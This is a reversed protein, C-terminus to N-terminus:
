YFPTPTNDKDWMEQRLEQIKNEDLSYFFKVIMGALFAGIGPALIFLKSIENATEVSVDQGAVIGLASLAFAILIGRFLLGLKIPIETMGMVFSGINDGSKWRTYIATNAYLVSNTPMAAGIVIYFFAFMTLVLYPNTSFFSATVLVVVELSFFLIYRHKPEKILKSIFPSLSAGILQAIASITMHASLLLPMKVAYTYYYFALAMSLFNGISIMLDACMMTLLPPNKAIVKLMQVITLHDEMQHEHLHETNATTIYAVIFTFAAVASIFFATLTFGLTEDGVLKGFFAIISFIVLSFLINSVTAFQSRRSALQGRVQNDETLTVLMSLNAVQGITAFFSSVASGIIILITSLWLGGISTYKFTHFLLIAFAGLLFWSRYKGWKLNVRYIIYGNTLGSITDFISTIILITGVITYPLLLYDTLFASFFYGEFMVIFSFGVNIIGYFRKLRKPLINEQAKQM